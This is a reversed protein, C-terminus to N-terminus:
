QKELFSVEESTLKEKKIIRLCIWFLPYVNKRYEIATIRFCSYHPVIHLVCCSKLVGIGGCLILLNQGDPLFVQGPLFVAQFFELAQICPYPM